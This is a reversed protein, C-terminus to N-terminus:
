HTYTHISANVVNMMGDLAMGRWANLTNINIDLMIMITEIEIGSYKTRARFVLVFGLCM